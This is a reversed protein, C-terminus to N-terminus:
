ISNFQILPESNIRIYDWQVEFGDTEGVGEVACRM